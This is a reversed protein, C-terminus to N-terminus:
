NRFAVEDIEKALLCELHQNSLFVFPASELGLCGRFNKASVNTNM